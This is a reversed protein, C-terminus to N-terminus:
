SWNGQSQVTNIGANWIRFYSDVGVIAAAATFQSIQPILTGAASIRVKGWVHAWGVTATSAAVIATNAATNVTNQAGAATALVAKNGETQWLQGAITATGALAFGFGGSTASLASLTFLCDFFYSGVPLTVAGNTPSNFLKQAATQSTLTFASTLTIFQETDAVGDPGAYWYTGDNVLQCTMNPGLVISTVAASTFLNDSGARQVTVIATGRNILVLTIGANNAVAPLTWTAASSGTFVYVVQSVNAILTLSTASSSVVGTGVSWSPM